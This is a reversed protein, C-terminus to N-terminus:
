KYTGRQVTIDFQPAGPARKVTLEGVAATLYKAPLGAEILVQRIADARDAALTENRETAGSTDAYTQVIIMQLPQVGLARQAMMLLQTRLAPTIRASGPLFRQPRIVTVSAGNVVTLDKAGAEPCGDADDKGDITEAENPCRDTSDPVGDADNDPDPCGDDDQFGDKDERSLPCKDQEDLIGDVDNDPDPCGDTDNYGDRDEAADPCTDKEDPIGDGDNDLDPCGDEDQFGDKDEPKFRCTDQADEIGDNDDDLEPCGDEDQFGDKDEAKDRCRDSTDPVADRDNDADICGDEDEFGDRDEVERPCQDVRDLVGDGDTDRSLPAFRVGVTFRYQPATVASESLPLASGGSLSFSVDGDRTPASRLTAMWEAPILSDSSKEAILEQTDPDRSLAEQDVFTPLAYAELAASLSEDPLIDYGAGLALFGQTGIRAGALNTAKRVRAGVEAGAFLGGTRFDASLTPILVAGRDGGFWDEDGTPAAVELRGTLAFANGPYARARPLLAYAVGFRFDRISSNPVDQAQSSTFASVGSGDQYLTVPMALTLELNQTLGLGWLFNTSVMHDIAPVETGDPNASAARLVIPKRLYTTVLGVSFEWPATTETAGVSQLRGPGPHPWLTDADICTGLRADSNCEAHSQATVTLVALTACAFNRLNSHTM